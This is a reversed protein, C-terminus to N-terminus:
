DFFVDSNNWAVGVVVGICVNLQNDLLSHESSVQGRTKTEQGPRQNGNNLVRNVLYIEFWNM